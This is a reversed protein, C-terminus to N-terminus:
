AATPLHVKADTSINWNKEPVFRNEFGILRNAGCVIRGFVGSSSYQSVGKVPSIARGSSSAVFPGM